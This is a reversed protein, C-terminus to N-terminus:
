SHVLLLVAMPSAALPVPLRENVPVLLPVFGIVPLMMTVGLNVLLPTVQVPVGIANVIVM